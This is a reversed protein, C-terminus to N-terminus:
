VYLKRVRKRMVDAPQHNKKASLIIRVSNIEATRAVYYAVVPEIGFSKYRADGVCDTIRDDAWKEFASTSERYKEAAEAYETGELYSLVAEEGNLAAEKLRDASVSSCSVLSRALFEASKGTKACRFAIKIDATAVLIEAIKRMLSSGTENGLSLMEEMTAKDIIADSIQGNGNSVLVDYAEKAPQQMCDPLKSFDKNEVASVIKDTDYVTSYTYLGETSQKVLLNKLAAKLNQMDNRILLLNLVSVDGLLESILDKTEQFHRAIYAPYDMGDEWEGWGKDSLIQKAAEYSDAEILQDIDAETLLTLENARVRAVAYAYDTDRRRNM